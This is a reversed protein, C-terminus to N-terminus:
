ADDEDDDEAPVTGVFEDVYENIDANFYVQAITEADLGYKEWIRKEEIGLNRLYHAARGMVGPAIKEVEKMLDTNTIYSLFFAYDDVLMKSTPDGHINFHLILADDIFKRENQQFADPASGGTATYLFNSDEWAAIFQAMPYTKAAHDDYGTDNIIFKINDPDSYDIGTIWIAHDQSNM